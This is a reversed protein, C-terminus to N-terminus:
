DLGRGRTMVSLHHTRDPTSGVGDSKEPQLILTDCRQAVVVEINKLTISIVERTNFTKEFITTHFQRCFRM